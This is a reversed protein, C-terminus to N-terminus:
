TLAPPDSTWALSHHLQLASLGGRTEDAVAEGLRHEAAATRLENKQFTGAALLKAWSLITSGQWRWM